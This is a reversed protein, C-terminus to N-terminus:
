GLSFHNLWLSHWLLVALRPVNCLDPNPPPGLLGPDPHVKGASLRSTARQCPNNSRVFSALACVVIAAEHQIRDVWVLCHGDAEVQLPLVRQAVVTEAPRNFVLKATSGARRSDPPRRLYSRYYSYFLSACESGKKGSGQNGQKKRPWSSLTSCGPAKNLGPRQNPAQSSPRCSRSKMESKVCCPLM